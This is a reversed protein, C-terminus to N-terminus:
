QTFTRDLDLELAAALPAGPKVVIPPRATPPLPPAAKETSTALNIIAGVAALGVLSTGVLIQAGAAAGQGAGCAAGDGGPCGDGGATAAIAVGALAVAGNAIYAGQKASPSRGFYCGGLLSLGVLIAAGLKHKM